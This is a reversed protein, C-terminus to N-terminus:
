SELRFLRGRGFDLVLVEGDRDTAFAVPHLDWTGLTLVDADPVPQDRDPVPVAWMRGTVFDAVLFRDRLAPVAEGRYVVGGTISLGIPHQYTWFPVVSDDQECEAGVPFCERGEHDNWGLNAGARAFGVEEWTDQGVDAVILRGDPTFASRWPNRVGTAWIAPHVGDQGVFPNDRPVHPAPADVDLRLISGLLTSADQGNGFPDNKLGGDGLPVYLMGDPGFLLQGGNHNPYPQEVTLLVPGEEVTGRLDGGPARLEQVVTAAGDRDGVYNVFLRGNTAFDPHFAIGLLGQESATLAPVTFAVGREGGPEVWLLEGGKQAVALLADDGPVVAVDTPKDLGAVVERLHVDLRQHREDVPDFSAGEAPPGEPQYDLSLYTVAARKIPEQFVFVLLGLVLAVVAAFRLARMM